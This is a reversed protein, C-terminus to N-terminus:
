LRNSRVINGNKKDFGNGLMYEYLNDWNSFGHNDYEIHPSKDGSKGVDQAEIKRISMPLKLHKLNPTHCFANVGIEELTEPLQLTEIMSGKFACNAIRITGLIVNHAAVNTPCAVLEIMHKRHTNGERDYGKRTYLVGDVECFVNNESAVNFRRFRCRGLGNWKVKGVDKTIIIEELDYFGESSNGNLYHIDDTLDESTLIPDSSQAVYYGYRKLNNLLSSNKVGIMLYEGCEIPYDYRAPVIVQM